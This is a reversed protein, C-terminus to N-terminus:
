VSPWANLSNIALQRQPEVFDLQRYVVHELFRKFTEFAM